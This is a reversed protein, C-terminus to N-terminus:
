ILQKMLNILLQLDLPKYLLSEWPSKLRVLTLLWQHNWYNPFSFDRKKHTGTCLQTSTQSGWSSRLVDDVRTQSKTKQTNKQFLIEWQGLVQLYALCTSQARLNRGLRGTEKEGASPNCAGWRVWRKVHTRPTQVWTKQAQLAFAKGVSGDRLGWIGNGEHGSVKTSFRMSWQM